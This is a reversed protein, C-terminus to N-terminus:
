EQETGRGGPRHAAFEEMDICGDGDADLDAFAPMTMAKRGRHGHCRHGTHGNLGAERMAMMHAKHGAALEDLNLQGDGDTDMDAFSPATAAGKMPRGAAAMRAMHQARSTSFEDESVMGDGDADFEVFPVPGHGRAGCAADAVVPAIALAIVVAIILTAEFFTRAPTRM